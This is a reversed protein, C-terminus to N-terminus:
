IHILSLDPVAGSVFSMRNHEDLDFLDKNLWVDASNHNVYIPIDGLIRVNQKNAYSKLKQWQKDFEFQLFLNKTFTDKYKDCVM